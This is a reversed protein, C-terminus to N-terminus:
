MEVKGDSEEGEELAVEDEKRTGIAVLAFLTVLVAVAVGMGVWPVWANKETFRSEEQDCVDGIGDADTDVQQRNPVDPCNDISNIKGDKDFDDCADGRGNGDIDIQETNSVSVCNDIEDRVGDRDIDAPIYYPSPLTPVRKVRLVGTNDALYGSEAVQVQTSRDADFYLTYVTDPRALFRLSQNTVQKTARGKLTMEAIRLPQVHTFIIEWKNSVTEPFMIKTGMVLRSAVVTKMEGLVQARITVMQPLSVHPSLQLILESVVEPSPTSLVIRATGSVDDVADFQIFTDGKKDVINQTNRVEPVTVASYVPGVTTRVEQFLSGVYSGTQEERVLFTDSYYSSKELPIEVVTPVTIDISGINKYNRFAERADTEQAATNTGVLVVCALLLLSVNKIYKM